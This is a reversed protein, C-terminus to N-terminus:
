PFRVNRLILEYLAANPKGREYLKVIPIRLGEQFIETAESSASGPAMGGVDAHHACTSSFAILRGEHFIPMFM